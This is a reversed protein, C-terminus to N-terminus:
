NYMNARYLFQAAGSDNRAWLEAAVDLIVGEGPQLLLGNGAAAYNSDVIFLSGTNAPLARIYTSRRGSEAGMLLTSAANPCNLVGFGSTNFERVGPILARDLSFDGVGYALRINNIWSSRNTLQVLSFTQGEPLRYKFGAAIREARVSADLELDFDGEASVVHVFNGFLPLATSGGLPIEVTHIHLQFQM